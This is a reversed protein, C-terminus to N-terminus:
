NFTFIAINMDFESCLNLFNLTQITIFIHTFSATIKIFLNVHIFSIKFLSVDIVTQNFMM